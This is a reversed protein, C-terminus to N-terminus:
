APSINGTYVMVGVKVEKESNGLLLFTAQMVQHVGDPPKSYSKIEAITKQDLDLIAHRLKEIRRLQEMVKRAMKMQLGLKKEFGEKEAADVAKELRQLDRKSM